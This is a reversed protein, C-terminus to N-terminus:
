GEKESWKRSKRWEEVGYRLAAMADNFDEVPDDEYQGTRKNKTWKWTQIEKLTNTCSPHIHIKRGKLWGIQARISNREKEVGKARIFGHDHWYKITAPQASDCWMRIDESLGREKAIKVVEEEHKEHVYIESCIYIEGDYFGLLLIATAHNFGFDQGIAMADFRQENIEFPEVVFDTFILGGIEGWSGLGYVAYGEPDREKREMMRLHYGEDCFRNDLYTSHSLYVQESPEDFFRKKIWHASSVPNFSFTIQYYLDDSIYGRLRDDLIEVDPQELETAEECWIWTLKGSSFAISKTHERQREDAMGKFIIQNGTTNCKMMMPNKTIWWYREAQDGFIRYIAGSLEAYTSDRNTEDVKRVALLNSGTYHPDSLKLIYDQALNFSKGSGAGGKLVRYRVRAENAEKFVRNFQILIDRTPM